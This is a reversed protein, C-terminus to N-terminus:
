WEGATQFEGLEEWTDECWEGRTQLEHRLGKLAARTVNLAKAGRATENSGRPDLVAAIEPDSRELAVRMEDIGIEMLRSHGNTGGREYTVWWPRLYGEEFVHVCLGRARAAMVAAAHVPRTDGYLM